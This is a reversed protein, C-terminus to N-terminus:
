PSMLSTGCNEDSSPSTPTRIVIEATSCTRMEPVIMVTREEITGDHRAPRVLGISASRSTATSVVPM